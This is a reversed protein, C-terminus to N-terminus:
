RGGLSQWEMVEFSKLVLNNLIDIKRHDEVGPINWSRLNLRIHWAANLVDAITSFGSPPRLARLSREAIERGEISPRKLSKSGLFRTVAEILRHALRETVTDAIDIKSDRARESPRFAEKFSTDFVDGYEAAAKIAFDARNRNSPYYESLRTNSDPALLYRFSNLYSEGFLWVGVCDCFVEECQRAAFNYSPNWVSIAELDADITERKNRITEPFLENVSPWNKQYEIVIESRILIGFERQIGTRRWIAHGLEHGATPVLLANQSETAPLGVLIFSELVQSFIPYVYPSYNWESGVILRHNPGLIAGAFGKIPHYIEFANRVNSSRLVFGVYGKNSQIVYRAQKCHAAVIEPNADDDLDELKKQEDQLEDRILEIAHKADDYPWDGAILFELMKIASRLKQKAFDKDLAIISMNLYAM